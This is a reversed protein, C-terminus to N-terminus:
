DNKNSEKNYNTEKSFNGMDEHMNVVKEEPNQLM